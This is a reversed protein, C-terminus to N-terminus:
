DGTGAAVPAADGNGDAVSGPGDAAAETAKDSEDKVEYTTTGKPGRVNIGILGPREDDFDDQRLMGRVRALLRLSGVKDHMEVEIQNGHETPTVKVKKIAKRARPSLDDAQTLFVNGDKDWRLVDTVEASAIAEIEDEVAQAKVPDRTRMQRAQSRVGTALDKSGPHRAM